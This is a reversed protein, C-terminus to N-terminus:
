VEPLKARRQVAPLFAVHHSIGPVAVPWVASGLILIGETASLQHGSPQRSPVHLPHGDDRTNVATQRRSLSVKFKGLLGPLCVATLTVGAWWPDDETFYSYVLFVDLCLHVTALLIDYVILHLLIRM